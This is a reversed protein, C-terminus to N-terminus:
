ATRTLEIVTQVEPLVGNKVKWKATVEHAAGLEKLFPELTDQPVEYSIGKEAYHTPIIVKPNIKRVGEVAHRSDLTYGNGGVPVVMVDVMGISELQDDSLPTAIHGIIVITLEDLVVKYITSKQTGDYDILRGAPIGLVSIDSVEYEGPMDIVVRGKGTILESQTGLEIADKPLIDKLGVASLKNDVVFVTQKSSIVVCNAGKYEIEM